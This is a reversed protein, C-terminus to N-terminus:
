HSTVTNAKSPSLSPSSLSAAAAALGPLFVFSSGELNLGAKGQRKREKKKNKIKKINKKNKKCLIKIINIIKCLDVM